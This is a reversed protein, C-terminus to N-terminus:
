QGQAATFTQGEYYTVECVITQFWVEDGREPPEITPMVAQCGDILHGPDLLADRLQRADHRILDELSEVDQGYLGRLDPYAVSVAVQEIRLIEDPLLINPETAPGTRRWEFQRVSASANTAWERLPANVRSRQFLRNPCYTPVIRELVGKFSQSGCYQRRIAASTTSAM